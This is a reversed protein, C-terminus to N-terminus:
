SAHRSTLKNVKSGTKSSEWVKRILSVWNIQFRQWNNDELEDDSNIVETDKGKKGIVWGRDDELGVRNLM